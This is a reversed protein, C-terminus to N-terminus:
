FFLRDQVLLEKGTHAFFIISVMWGVWDVLVMRNLWFRVDLFRKTTTSARGTPTLSSSPM